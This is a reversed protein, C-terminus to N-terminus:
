GGRIDFASVTESRVAPPQCRSLSLALSLSLTGPSFVPSLLVVVARAKYYYGLGLVPQYSACM